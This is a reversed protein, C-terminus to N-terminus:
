GNHNKCQNVLYIERHTIYYRCDLCVIGKYNNIKPLDEIKLKYGILSLSAMIILEKETLERKILDQFIVIDNVSIPTKITIEHLLSYNFNISKELEKSYYIVAEIERLESSKSIKDLIYDRQYRSNKYYNNMEVIKKIALIGWVEQM